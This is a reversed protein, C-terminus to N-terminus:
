CTQRLHDLLPPVYAPMPQQPAAGKPDHIVIRALEPEV